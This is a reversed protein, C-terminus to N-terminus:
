SGDAQSLQFVNGEPDCGDCLQYPFGEYRKVRRMAVGAELLKERMEGLDSCVSFVLKVNSSAGGNTSQRFPQGARHLALEIMGAQLVVWEEEIEEVVELGFHTQYFAKLLAVDHVYYIIRTAPISMIRVFIVRHMQVPDEDKSARQARM